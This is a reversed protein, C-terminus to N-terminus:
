NGNRAVLFVKAEGREGMAQHMMGFAEVVHEVVEDAQSAAVELSEIAKKQVDDSKRLTSLSDQIAAQAEQIRGIESALSEHTAQHTALREDQTALHSQLASVKGKWDALSHVQRATAHALKLEVLVSHMRHWRDEPNKELCRSVVRSIQEPVDALPTPTEELIERKLCETDEAPFAKRGSFLEYVVAGFAFIDSRADAPEGRLQEPSLYATLGPDGCHGLKAGSPDWMIQSPELHGCVEGKRHLLRLADALSIAKRFPEEWKVDLENM